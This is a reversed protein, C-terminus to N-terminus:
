IWLVRREGARRFGSCPRTCSGRAPSGTTTRKGRWHSEEGRPTPPKIDDGELANPQEGPPWGEDLDLDGDFWDRAQAVAMRM